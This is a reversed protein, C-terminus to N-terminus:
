GMLKRVKIRRIERRWGIPQSHALLQTASGAPTLGSCMHIWICFYIVHDQHKM